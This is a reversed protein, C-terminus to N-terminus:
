NCLILTEKEIIQNGVGSLVGAGYLSFLVQMKLGFTYIESENKVQHTLRTATWHPFHHFFEGWFGFIV